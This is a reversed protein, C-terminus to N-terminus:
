GYQILAKEIESGKFFDRAEQKLKEEKSVETNVEGSPARGSLIEFARLKEAREIIQKSEINAKELREALAKAEELSIETM